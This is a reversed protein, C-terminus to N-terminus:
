ARPRRSPPASPGSPRTPAGVYGVFRGQDWIEVGSCGAHKARYAQGHEIAQGDSALLAEERATFSGQRDVCYFRYM